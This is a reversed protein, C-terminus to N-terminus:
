VQEDGVLPEHEPAVAQPQPQGGVSENLLSGARCLLHAAAGGTAGVAILATTLVATAARPVQLGLHLVGSTTGGIGCGTLAGGIAAGAATYEILDFELDEPQGACRAVNYHLAGSLAGIAAGPLGGTMLVETYAAYSVVGALGVDEWRYADAVLKRAEVYRAHM